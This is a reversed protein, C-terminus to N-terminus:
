GCRLPVCSRGFRQQPRAPSDAQTRRGATSPRRRTVRPVMLFAWAPSASGRATCGACALRPAPARHAPASSTPVVARGARQSQTCFRAGDPLAPAAPRTPWVSDAVLASSNANAACWGGEARLRPSVGGGGGGQFAGKRACQRHRATSTRGPRRPASPRGAPRRFRETGALGGTDRRAGRAPAGGRAAPSGPRRAHMRRPLRAGKCPLHAARHPALFHRRHQPCSGSKLNIAAPCAPEPRASRTPRVVLEPWRLSPGFEAGRAPSRGRRSAQCPGM